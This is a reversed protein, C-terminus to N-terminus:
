LYRMTFGGDGLSIEAERGMCIALNDNTHGAPFGYFIPFGLDGAIESIIQETSKGYAIRGEQMDDFSGVLLAALNNLMGALKLSTMMRDLHYSYEGIDEIFLIRGATEPRAVTGALSYLLSLNGGIVIGQVSTLNVASGAWRCPETVGFLMDRVSSITRPTRAPNNYNLPMEGHITAIGFLTNVWLHLVTIDSFGVIWKPWAAFASFDVKGIIRSLGYGGRSCIIAKVSSDDLAEQLDHLREEDTGAFIGNSSFANKGIVVKLGWSEVVRVAQVVTEQSVVGSPSIVAVKDGKMLPPPIVPNEKMIGRM